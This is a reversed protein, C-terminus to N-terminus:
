TLIPQMGNSDRKAGMWEWQHRIQGPNVHVDAIAAGGGYGSPRPLARGYPFSARNMWTRWADQIPLSVAALM